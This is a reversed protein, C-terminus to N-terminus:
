RLPFMTGPTLDGDFQKNTLRWSDGSGTVEALPSKLDSVESEFHVDVAWSSVAQHSSNVSINLLLIIESVGFPRLCCCGKAPLGFIYMYM